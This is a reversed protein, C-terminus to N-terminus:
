NQKRQEQANQKTQIPQAPNSGAVKAKFSRHEVLQALLGQTQKTRSCSAIAENPDVM